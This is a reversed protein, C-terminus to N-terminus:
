DATEGPPMDLILERKEVRWFRWRDLSLLGMDPAVNTFVWIRPSDFWWEKYHNRTDWVKGKKVQEIATFLGSLKDKNQSRPMDFLCIGPVRCDKAILINCLSQILKEGDNTTPMDICGHMLDALSAITSKGVGGNPDIICDVKRPCFNDKSDIVYKQWPYLELNRYQRPVYTPGDTNKWPGELRTDEKLCYFAVKRHEETTTPELYEPVAVPVGKMLKMLETKRRLKWLSMRGQWHRYGTKKGQELQFVWKKALKPLVRLLEEKAITDEGFRFDYVAVLTNRSNPSKPMKNKSKFFVVEFSFFLKAEM